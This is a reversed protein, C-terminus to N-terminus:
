FQSCKPRMCRPRAARARSRRADIIRMRTNGPTLVRMSSRLAAALDDSGSDALAIKDDRPDAVRLSTSSARPSVGHAVDCLNRVQAGCCAESQLLRHLAPLDCRAPVAPYLITSLHHNVHHPFLLVRGVVNGISGGARNCRAATLPSSLDTVWWARRHARMRLSRSCCTSCRCCRCCSTSAGAGASRRCPHSWRRWSSSRSCPGATRGRVRVCRLRRTMWRDRPATPRPMSRRRGLSTPLPRRPM